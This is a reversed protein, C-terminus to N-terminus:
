STRSYSVTKWSDAMIGILLNLFVVAVVFMYIVMLLTAAEPNGCDYFMQFEFGTM